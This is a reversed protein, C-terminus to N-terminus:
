VSPSDAIRTRLTMSRASDTRPRVAQPGEGEALPSRPRKASGAGLELATDVPSAPKQCTGGLSVIAEEFFGLVDMYHEDCKAYLPKFISEKTPDQPGLEASLREKEAQIDGVWELLKAFLTACEAGWGKRVCEIAIRRQRRGVSFLISKSKLSEDAKESDWGAIVKWAADTTPRPTGDSLHRLFIWCLLFFFGELDDLYDHAPPIESTLDTLYDLIACSQFFRSGTRAEKNLRKKLNDFDIAVNLDILVGRWGVPDGDKGLLVNKDNVDRHLIKAESLLKMHGVIADHLASLLQLVTEFHQLHRGYARMLIRSSIRNFFHVSTITTACRFDKTQRRSAQYSVIQCVGEVGKEQAKKLHKYEPTRGASVWTDKVIFENGQMDRVAWCTTARGRIVQVSVPDKNVLTYQQAPSRSPKYTLTGQEKRGNAGITWQISDDIGIAREDTDSLGVILRIFDSPNAHIDFAPSVQAGSRDFHVLRCTEESLLMGRIFFRNPQHALVQRAYISLQIIHTEFGGMDCERKIDFYTAINSYGLTAHEPVEFSPGKAFIVLDPSTYREQKHHFRVNHTDVAEREVGAPCTLFHSLVDNVLEVMDDYIKKEKSPKRPLHWRRKRNDYFGNAGTDIYANIQTTTLTTFTETIYTSDAHLVPGIEEILTLGEVKLDKGPAFDLTTVPKHPTGDPRKASAESFAKLGARDSATVGSAIRTRRPHATALSHIDGQSDPSEALDISRTPPPFPASSYNSQTPHINSPAIFENDTPNRVTTESDRRPPTRYSSSPETASQSNSNDVMDVDEDISESLTPKVPWPHKGGDAQPSGPASGVGIFVTAPQSRIWTGKENPALFSRQTSDGKYTCLVSVCIDFDLENKIYICKAGSPGNQTYTASRVPVSPIGYWKLQNSTNQFHLIMGLRGQYVQASQEGADNMGTSIHVRADADRGWSELTGPSITWQTNSGRGSVDAIQEPRAPRAVRRACRCLQRAAM